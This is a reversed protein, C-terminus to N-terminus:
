EDADSDDVRKGGVEAIRRAKLAAEVTAIGSAGSRGSEMLRNALAAETMIADCELLAAYLERQEEGLIADAVARPSAPRASMPKIGHPRSVVAAAMAQDKSAVALGAFMGLETKGSAEINAAITVRRDSAVTARMLMTVPNDYLPIAAKASENLRAIARLLEVRRPNTENKLTIKLTAASADIAALRAKTGLDSLSRNLEERRKEVKADIGALIALLEAKARRAKQVTERVQEASLWVPTPTPITM